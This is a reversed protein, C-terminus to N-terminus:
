PRGGAEWGFGSRWYITDLVDGAYTEIKRVGSDIAEFLKICASMDCCEDEAIRLDGRQSKFDYTLKLVECQLRDETKNAV